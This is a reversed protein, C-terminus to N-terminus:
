AGTETATAIRSDIRLREGAYVRTTPRLLAPLLRLAAEPSDAQASIFAGHDGSRCYCFFEHGRLRTPADPAEWAESMEQCQEARHAHHLLYEAM